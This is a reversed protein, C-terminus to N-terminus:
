IARLHAVIAETKPHQSYGDILKAFEDATATTNIPILFGFVDVAHKSLESLKGQINIGLHTRKVIM